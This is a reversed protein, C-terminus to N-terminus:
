RRPWTYPDLGAYQFAPLRMHKTIRPIDGTGDFFSKLQRAVLEANALWEKGDPLKQNVREIVADNAAIRAVLGALQEAVAPYVAALEKALADREVLATDYATRRRAEEEERRVERLRESLRRTAEMLRDRRFTADESARRAAVVDAAVLTPDLARTRALEADEESVIAAAEAEAILDAVGSSTAGDKFAAAVREDLSTMVFRALREGDPKKHHADERADEASRELAELKGRARDPLRDLKM